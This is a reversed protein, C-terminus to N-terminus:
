QQNTRNNNPVAKLQLACPDHFTWCPVRDMLGGSADDRPVSGAGALCEKGISENRQRLASMM